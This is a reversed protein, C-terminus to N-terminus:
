RNLMSTKRMLGFGLKKIYFRLGVFADNLVKIYQMVILMSNALTWNGQNFFLTLFSCNLCPLTYRFIIVIEILDATWGQVLNRRSIWLRYRIRAKRCVNPVWQSMRKTKRHFLLFLKHVQKKVCIYITLISIHSVRFFLDELLMIDSTVLYM